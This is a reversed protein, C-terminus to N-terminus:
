VNCGLLIGSKDWCLRWLHRYEGPGIPWALTLGAMEGAGGDQYGQLAGGWHVLGFGTSELRWVRQFSLSLGLDSNQNVM